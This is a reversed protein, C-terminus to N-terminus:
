NKSDMKKLNKYSYRALQISSLTMIALLSIQFILMSWEIVGPHTISWISSSAGPSIANTLLVTLSSSGYAIFFTFHILIRTVREGVYPKTELLGLGEHRARMYEYIFIIFINTWVIWTFDLNYASIYLLQTPVLGVLMLIDSIRDIVNDVWAGKKSKIDLLRAIGGDIGDIIGTFLVLFALLFFWSGYIPQQTFVSLNHGRAAMITGWFIFISLILNILSVKNPTLGMKIFLKAGNYTIPMYIMGSPDKKMQSYYEELKHASGHDRIWDKIFEDLSMLNQSQTGLKKRGLLGSIFIIILVVILGL